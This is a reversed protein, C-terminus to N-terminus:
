LAELFLFPGAIGLGHTARGKPSIALAVPSIGNETNWSRSLERLLARGMVGSLSPGPQIPSGVFFGAPRSGRPSQVHREMEQEGFGSRATMPTSSPLAPM